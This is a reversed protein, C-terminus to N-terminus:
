GKKEAEKKQREKEQKEADPNHEGLGDLMESVSEHILGLEIAEQRNKPDELFRLYNEPNNRFRARVDSPLEKFMTQIEHVSDMAAKFDDGTMDGYRAEMKAVHVLVGDTDYKKIIRNIDCRKKHQQETTYQPKGDSNVRPKDRCFARVDINTSKKEAKAKEVAKRYAKSM